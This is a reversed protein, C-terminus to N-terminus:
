GALLEEFSGLSDAMGLKVADAGIRIGGKGFDNLVTDVSVKRNEAVDEIFIQALTDIRTQLETRGEETAPDPRKMPSQSSVIRVIGDEQDVRVGLVAGISGLEATKSVVIRGAASALWYAASAAMGDVYAIVPKSSRKIMEAFESIGSAQGGPSDYVMVIRKVQEEGQTTAFDRALGALTQFGFFRTFINDYRFVPGIVRLVATQGRMEINPSGNLPQGARAALAEINMSSAQNLLSNAYDNTMALPASGLFYNALAAGFLNQKTDM